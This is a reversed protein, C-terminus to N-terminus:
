NAISKDEGFAIGHLSNVSYVGMGFKTFIPYISERSIVPFWAHSVASAPFLLCLIDVGLPTSMILPKGRASVNTTILVKEKGARFRKIVAARQEVTLEGSLLAVAHGEGSMKECLWNATKKTQILFMHFNKCAM